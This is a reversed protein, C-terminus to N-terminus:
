KEIYFYVDWLNESSKLFFFLLPTGQKSLYKYEKVWM